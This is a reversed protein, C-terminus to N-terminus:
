AGTNGSTSKSLSLERVQVQKRTVPKSTGVADDDEVEDNNGEKLIKHETKPGGPGTKPEGPRTKSNRTDPKSTHVATDEGKDEEKQIKRRKLDGAETKM